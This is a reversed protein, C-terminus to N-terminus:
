KFNKVTEVLAAINELKAAPPVGHGLNFIYGNRGRMEELLRNTEATVKEPTAEALLAPNLNGQIAWSAPLIKRAEALSFQWDIGLVDAGTAALNNWNDHTGLSFVIVPVKRRLNTIIDRMWCSSAQQFDFGQLHGGHSDFIQLADAGATIQMQLYATVAATLKEMLAVFTKKDSDFLAKAKTFKEASGGEMMFTALTWPSGSFGILTTENGLEKRLIKLAAAVYNLKECVHAVSLQEIDAISSIKFDMEIGGAERFRYPQGMAEPIVLIDSFLIAADFGFRRIPQLTVEAALEPTQVLQLFTYKEKLKRYEPLARGAQRMLWVPPRDVAKCRCADLFRQRNTLVPATM